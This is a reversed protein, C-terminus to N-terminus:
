VKKKKELLVVVRCTPASGDLDFFGAGLLAQELTQQQLRLRKCCRGGHLLGSGRGGNQQVSEGPPSAPSHAPGPSLARNQDKHESVSTGSRM